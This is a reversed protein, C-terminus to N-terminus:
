AQKAQLRRYISAMAELSISEARADLRLGADGMAAQIHEADAVQASRLNNVLTKRKQHFCLQLFRMFASREVQLEEFRPHMDLRVVASSVGPAPTFAEPPLAFLKEVHGHMQATASLVGYASTGATAALRDAVEEQVMVIARSISAAQAFLHLLIDSTIYYPLNGVVVLPADGATGTMTRADAMELELIDAQLIAVHGASKWKETLWPALTRDLEVAILNGARAALLDTLAGRGPGIELVTSSSIDGLAEVIRQRASPDTLFNQGLKPKKQSM